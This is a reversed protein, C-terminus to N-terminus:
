EDAPRGLVGFEVPTEVYVINAQEVELRAFLTDCHQSSLAM